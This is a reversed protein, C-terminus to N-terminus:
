MPGEDAILWRETDKNRALLYGWVTPGDPMSMAQRQRLTFQVPVFVVQRYGEAATGAGREPIPTRMVLDTISVINALGDVESRVM